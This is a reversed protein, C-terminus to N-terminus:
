DLISRILEVKARNSPKSRSRLFPKLEETLHIIKDQIAADIDNGESCLHALQYAAALKAATQVSISSDHIGSLACDLIDNLYSERM